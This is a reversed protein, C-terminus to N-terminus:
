VELIVWGTSNFFLVLGFFCRQKRRNDVSRSPVVFDGRNGPSRGGRHPRPGGYPPLFCRRRSGANGPRQRGWAPEPELGVSRGRGFGSWLAAMLAGLAAGSGGGRRNIGWGPACVGRRGTSAARRTGEGPSPPERGEGAVAVQAASPPRPAWPSSLEAGEPPQAPAARGALRRHCGWPLAASGRSFCSSLLGCASHSSKSSNTIM